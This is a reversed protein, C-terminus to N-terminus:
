WPWSTEGGDHLTDRAAPELDAARQTARHRRVYVILCLLAPVAAGVVCGAAIGLLGGALVILQGVPNWCGCGGFVPTHDIGYRWGQMGGVLMAVSTGVVAAAAAAGGRIGRRRM